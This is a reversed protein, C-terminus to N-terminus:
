ETPKQKLAHHAVLQKLTEILHVRDKKPLHKFFYDDNADAEDALKPVLTKGQETLALTVYRRDEADMVRTALKKKLLREVLRSAAGRDLGMGVALESLSCPEHTYLSRLAVWEAVTVRYQELRKAFSGSVHNSVFRLWFGIHYELDRTTKKSM